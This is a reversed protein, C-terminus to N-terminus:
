LAVLDGLTNLRKLMTWNGFLAQVDVLEVYLLPDSKIFYQYTNWGSCTTLVQKVDDSHEALPPAAWPLQAAPNPTHQIQLNDDSPECKAESGLRLPPCLTYFIM